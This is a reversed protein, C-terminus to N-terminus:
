RELANLLSRAHEEGLAVAHRLHDRAGLYDGIAIRRSAEQFALSAQEIREADTLPAAALEGVEFAAAPVFPRSPTTPALATQTMPASRVAIAAIDDASSLWLTPAIVAIGVAFGLGMAGVPGAVEQPM